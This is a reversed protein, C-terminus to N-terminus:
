ARHWAMSGLRAHAAGRADRHAPRPGAALGASQDMDPGGPGRRYRRGLDMRMDAPYGRRLQRPQGDADGRRAAKTLARAEFVDHTLPKEVYVHKGIQMAAMAAVAHMHDPTAVTVADIGSHMEGLMVRFYKYRKAKAYRECSDAAREDDVDCLAM